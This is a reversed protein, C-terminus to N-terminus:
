IQTSILWIKTYIRLSKKLDDIIDNRLLGAKMPWDNAQGRYYNTTSTDDYLIEFTQILEKYM